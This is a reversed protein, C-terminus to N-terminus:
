PEVSVVGGFTNVELNWRTGIKFQLFTSYDSLTYVLDGQDTDFTVLYTESEGGLRQESTLVPEPWLPNFDEGTLSATDVVVWELVTYSCFDDYVRYECDQVVEAYGSGTDVSYPTGCVEEANPQPESVVSRVEQQCGQIDADAPIQDRWDKYAVPTLGEISISREWGVQQVTGTVAETRTLFFIAAAALVCFAVLAIILGVPMKRPTSPTSPQDIVSAPPEQMEETQLSAGCQECAAATQLNEAGCNPCAVKGVPKDQYAGLVKGAERQEGDVLDGGCQTCVKADGRNRAQCYPCHIDPGAKVRAAVAEDQTLGAGQVQKFEVDDPQPAGCQGCTKEPGPNNGGCNPCSWQLEEYGLIKKAM